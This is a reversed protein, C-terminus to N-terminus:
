YQSADWTFSALCKDAWETDDEDMRMLALDIYRNDRVARAVLDAFEGRALAYISYSENIEVLRGNVAYEGTINYTFKHTNRM